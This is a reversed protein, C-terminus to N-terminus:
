LLVTQAQGSTVCDYIAQICSFNFVAQENVVARAPQNLMRQYFYLLPRDPMRVTARRNSPFTICRSESRGNNDYSHTLWINSTWTPWEWRLTGRLGEVEISSRPESHTGSAREYTMMATTGDPLYYRMTAGGHQEVDNVTGPPLSLVTLPNALWASLVDVRTPQLLENLASFEYPARDMLTGGGSKRRDLFWTTEPQYEIGPRNRQELVTFRIHYIQGLVGERLLRRAENAPPWDLFRVSCCGLLRQYQQAIALM